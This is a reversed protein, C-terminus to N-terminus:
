GGSVSVERVGRRYLLALVTGFVALWLAQHGYLSLAAAPSYILSLRAPGYILYQFPLWRAVQAIFDPFVEIPMLLGGLIMRLRDILLWPGSSDETWFALLGVGANICFSITHSILVALLVAPLAAAILPPPGVLWWVLAGGTVLIVALRVAGRGLFEAYYYLLYSVPKNLRYAIDGSRVERDIDLNVRIQSLHIGEALLMYWMLQALTYGEISDRDGLTAKWLQTFVYLIILLFVNSLVQELPYAWQQRVTISFIGAYKRWQRIM